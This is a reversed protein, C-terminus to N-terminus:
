KVLEYKPRGYGAIHAYTLAYKCERVASPSGCNGEITYVYKSDANSVLGTHAIYAHNKTNYFFIQDGKQPNKTFFRGANKYYNMSYKCGAGLSKRPQCIMQLALEVGFVKYFNWDSFIDCYDFGNKRGNFWDGVADLDRAYKNYLGYGNPAAKIDLNANTAKSFYGVEAKANAILKDQATM